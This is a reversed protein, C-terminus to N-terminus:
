FPSLCTTKWSMVVLAGQKDRNPPPRAHWRRSSTSTRRTLKRGDSRYPETVGVFYVDVRDAVKGRRGRDVPRVEVRHSLRRNM